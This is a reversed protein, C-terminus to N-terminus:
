DALLWGRDSYLVTVGLAIWMMPALHSRRAPTPAPSAETPVPQVFFSPLAEPLIPEAAQWRSKVKTPEFRPSRRPPPDVDMRRVAVERADVTAQCGPCEMTLDATAARIESGCVPCCVPVTSKQRSRAQRSPSDAIPWDGEYLDPQKSLRSRPRRHHGVGAATNLGPPDFSTRRKRSGRRPGNSFEQSRAVEPVAEDPM